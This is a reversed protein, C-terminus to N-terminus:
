PNGRTAEGSPGPASIRRLYLLLTVITTVTATTTPLVTPCGSGSASCALKLLQWCVVRTASLQRSHWQGVRACVHSICRPETRCASGATPPRFLTTLHFSGRHRPCMNMHGWAAGLGRRLRNLLKTIRVPSAPLRHTPRVSKLSQTHTRM